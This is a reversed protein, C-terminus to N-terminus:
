DDSKATKRNEALQKLSSSVGSVESLEEVGNDRLMRSAGESESADDEPTQPKTVPAIDTTPEDSTVVPERRTMPADLALPVAPPPTQNSSASQAEEAPTAKARRFVLVNRWTTTSSTLGSREISPLTEARQYEWGEQAMSNMMDELAHAFRAEHSRIGKAKMGRTPAAVVRYEYNQM